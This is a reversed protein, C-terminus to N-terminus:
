GAQPYQTFNLGRLLTTLSCQSDMLSSFMGLIHYGVSSHRRLYGRRCRGGDIELCQGAGNNDTVTVSGDVWTNTNWESGRQVSLSYTCLCRFRLPLLDFPCRVFPFVKSLSMQKPPAATIDNSKSINVITLFNQSKTCLLPACYHM